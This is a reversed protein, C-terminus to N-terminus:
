DERIIIADAALSTGECVGRIDVDQRLHLDGTDGWEGGTSTSIYVITESDFSVNFIGTGDECPFSDASLRLSDPGPEEAIIGTATDGDMITIDHVIVLASNCYDPDDGSQVMLICDVMVPRPVIIDSTKLADGYRNMIRTGNVPPDTPQLAVPLVGDVSIGQDPALEMNFRIDSADNAVRGDLMLFRGLEVVLGDMVPYYRDGDHHEVEDDGYGMLGVVTVPRTGVREEILLEDLPIADGGSTRNIGDDEINDFAATDKIRVTV